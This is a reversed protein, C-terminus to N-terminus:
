EQILLGQKVWSKLQRSMDVKDKISTIDRAIGSTIYEHHALYNNITDRYEIKQLNLLIVEVSNPKRSVPLYFPEYLNNEKMIQFLRNM